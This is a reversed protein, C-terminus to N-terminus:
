QQLVRRPRAVVDAAGELVQGHEHVAETVVGVPDSATAVGSASARARLQNKATLADSLDPLGILSAIKDGRLVATDLVIQRDVGVARMPDNGGEYRWQVLNGVVEPSGILTWRTHNVAANQVLRGISAPGVCPTKLTCISGGVVQVADDTFLATVGSADGQNILDIYRQAVAGPGIAAAAALSANTAASAATTAAAAAPGRSASETASAFSSPAPSSVAPASGGCAALVLAFGASLSYTFPRDLVNKM